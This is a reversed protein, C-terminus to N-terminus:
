KIYRPFMTEASPPMSSFTERHMLLALDAKATQRFDPLAIREVGLDHRYQETSTKKQKAMDSYRMSLTRYLTDM